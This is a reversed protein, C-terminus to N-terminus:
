TSSRASMSRPLKRQDERSLLPGTALQYKAAGIGVDRRGWRSNFQTHNARDVAVAAKVLDPGVDARAYQRAGAFTGVDADYTGGLTLYNVGRLPLPKGGTLGDSPALAIVTRIRVDPDAASKAEADLEARRGAALAVAEGGRSHGLLSVQSLDVKGAFPGGATANLTKWEHLHQLLLWARATGAGSISNAKDLLGTNM